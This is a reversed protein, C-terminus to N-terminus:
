YIRLVGNETETYGGFSLDRAFAEYDFYRLAFEPLNYCEEIYNYAYDELTIGEYFEARDMNNLAEDITYCQAEILAELKAFDYSDFDEIQEAMENMEEINIFEDSWACYNIDIDWDTFFYEEYYKGDIGIEKKVEELEENTIPFSIWEGVLEMENYKGLNTIFGKIKANENIRYM